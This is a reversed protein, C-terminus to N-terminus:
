GNMLINRTNSLIHINRVDREGDLKRFSFLYPIYLGIVLSLAETIKIRGEWSFNARAAFQLPYHSVANENLQEM